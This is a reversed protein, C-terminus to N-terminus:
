SKVARASSWLAWGPNVRNPYLELMKDYLEQATTTTEVLKDFDHIYQRTEEIIQPIDERGPRKHSAIVAHPKLSEIKNLASIWERRSKANSEVLYLHVDNYAADGAVVLGISPVNLCTTYDTDTHGLEVAILEHGELEIVNGKLEEALVLREPIQSPFATKWVKELVEPSAHQRMVKVVEPMAVARADPFRELLTTIGFWHDGHGHTIYITTLNKGSAAVWDALENAQKGTMFADVLVADKMGYILTSAMAQFYVEKVGPPMDRTVIPIGRTTFVDWKLHASAQVSNM